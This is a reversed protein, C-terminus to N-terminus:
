QKSLSQKLHWLATQGHGEQYILNDSELEKMIRYVQQRGLDTFNRIDANRLPRDKLLSLIRVKIAERDLRRTMDYAVGENLIASARRSLRYVAGRGTGSHELMLLRTELSALKERLRRDDYPYAERIDNWNAEHRRRFFHLLLLDDVDLYAGQKETLFSLLVKFPQDAKQGPFTVRVTQGIEDFAPPEKGEELLARFIRPVGLNQRNVLRTALLVTEVLYRNRTVPAHHLINEPTVGGTFGGPSNIEFRDRYHRIFVMGPITYDRHAFANLLAERLAITPYQPFEAHFLGSPVTTMPNQQGLLLMIKDLAVLICDRGSVPPTEYDTDTRLRSYKWEHNPAHEAIMEDRGAVLLGAMTLRGEKLFGLKGCLDTDDCALLDAPSGISKMERRLIEVAAQSIAKIPNDIPLIKATPDSLGAKERLQRLLSGTLPKCDKGFRMWGKGSTTTYPPMSPHVHMLLLRRGGHMLWEFQVPLKPDISDYLTANLAELDPAFDLGVIAKDCGRVREKVGFVVTGGSSNGLCVAMEKALDRLRAETPCEKFDLNENELNDAIQEDLLPLLSLIKEPTYVM